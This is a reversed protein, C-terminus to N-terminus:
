SKRQGCRHSMHSRGHLDSVPTLIWLDLAWMGCCSCYKLPLSTSRATWNCFNRSWCFTRGDIRHSPSGRSFTKLKLYRSVMNLARASWVMSTLARMTLAMCRHPWSRCMRSEPFIPILRLSRRYSGETQESNVNTQSVHDRFLCSTSPMMLPVFLRMSDLNVPLLIGASALCAVQLRLRMRLILCLLSLYTPCMKLYPGTWMVYVVSAAWDFLLVSPLKSISAGGWSLKSSRMGKAISLAEQPVITLWMGMGVWRGVRLWRFHMERLDLRFLM